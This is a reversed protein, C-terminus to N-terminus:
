YPSPVASPLTHSLLADGRKSKIIGLQAHSRPIKAIRIIICDTILPDQRDHITGIGAIRGQSAVPPGSKNTATLDSDVNRRWQRIRMIPPRSQTPTEQPLHHRYRSAMQLYPRHRILNGHLLQPPMNLPIFPTQFADVATEEGHHLRALKDQLHALFDASRAISHSFYREAAHSSTPPKSSGRISGSRKNIKHM